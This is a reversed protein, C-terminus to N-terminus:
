LEEKAAQEQMLQMVLGAGAVQGTQLAQVVSRMAAVADGAAFCGDVSTEGPGRLVVLRGGAMEEERTELGLGLQGALLPAAAQATLPHSAVFAEERRTGDALTVVVASSAPWDRLALRAIKRTEVTTADSNCFAAALTADGDTYITTHAALRKTLLSVHTLAAPSSLLGVGLVGVSEAGREEFGDCFLCHFIGRGWCDAYGEVQEEVKDRVGTALGLKRGYYVNGEADEAEFGAAAAAAATARRVEVIATGDRFAISPYRAELDARVKARFAAPPAHDFGPVNHMHAARANRYAGSDLVLASFAQRALTTAMSLGAPGGGIILVDYVHPM